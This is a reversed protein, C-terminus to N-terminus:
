FNAAELMQYKEDELFSKLLAALAAYFPTSANQGVRTLCKGSWALLHEALFAARKAYFGQAKDQDGCEMAAACKCSLFAVFELEVGLHDPLGDFHERPQLGEDKYLQAVERAERGWLAAKGGKAHPDDHQRYVSEFPHVYSEGPVRFLAEYDLLFDQDQRRGFRHRWSIQKFTEVDPHGPFLMEMATEGAVTFLKDLREATPPNLLLDSFFTYLRARAREMAAAEAIEHKM